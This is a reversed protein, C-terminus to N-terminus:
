VPKTAVLDVLASMGQHRPGENIPADYEEILEIELSGFAERLL